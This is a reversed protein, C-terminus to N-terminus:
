NNENELRNLLMLIECNIDSYAEAKYNLCQAEIRFNHENAFAMERYISERKEKIIDSIKQLAKKATM